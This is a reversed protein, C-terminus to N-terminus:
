LRACSFNYIKYLFFFCAAAPCHAGTTNFQSYSCSRFFNADNSFQIKAMTMVEYYGRKSYTWNIFNM